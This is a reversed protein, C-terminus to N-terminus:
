LWDEESLIPEDERLHVIGSLVGRPERSTKLNM